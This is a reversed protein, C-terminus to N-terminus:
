FDPLLCISNSGRTLSECASTLYELVDRGQQRLSTVATLIREVFRSGSESQTGFSKRRWMVARRLPREANNNIPEVGDERVFTWLSVEHNLLNACTRRTKTQECSAGREVLERVRAQIPETQQQFEERSSGGAQLQRWLDFLNRVEELLGAGIEASTGGRQKIAEFERKLHAWCLQRRHADLWHYAAYRDTNVIGSFGKGIMERAEAQSRGRMVRFVTVRPTADIWMWKQKDGEPWGTEDVQNVPQQHVYQRATKVPQELARSIQTQIAAVSGLGLSLGHLAAMAEVVDRHSLALRGTLYGVIAQARPGFHGRPM